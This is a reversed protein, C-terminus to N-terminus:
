GQQHQAQQGGQQRGRGLHRGVLQRGAAAALQVLAIRAPGADLGGVQAVVAEVVAHAHGDGEEAGGVGGGPLLEAGVEGDLGYGLFVPLHEFPM